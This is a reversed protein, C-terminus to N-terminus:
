GTLWWLCTNTLPDWKACYAGRANDYPIYTGNADYYGYRNYSHYVGNADTYGWSTYSSPLFPSAVATGVTTVGSTVGGIIQGQGVGGTVTGDAAATSETTNCASLALAAAGALAVVGAKHRSQRSM